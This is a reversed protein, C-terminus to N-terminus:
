LYLKMCILRFGPLVTASMEVMGKPIYIICKSSNGWLSFIKLTQLFFHFIPLCCVIRVYQSFFIKLFPTIVKCYCVGSNSFFPSGPKGLTALHLSQLHVPNLQIAKNVHIFAEPIRRFMLITFNSFFCWARRM